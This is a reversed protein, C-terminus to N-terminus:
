RSFYNQSLDKALARIADKMQDRDFNDSIHYEYIFDFKERQEIKKGDRDELFIIKLNEKYSKAVNAVNISSLGDFQDVNEGLILFDYNKIMTDFDIKELIVDMSKSIKTKFFTYLAWAVGGGSGLTPLDLPNIGLTQEIKEKFNKSGKYLFAIDEISAGKRYVRSELFSNEGFLTMDTSTAITIDADFIRHDMNSIDITEVNVMNKAIPNLENGEDDFFRAGLSYLMGMGLDNTATDGIGIYFSKAGANLGDVLMEGFGLSSSNMVDLEEKYLLRLGSSQAMEMVAYNERMVYRATIVDNKPNHVNVYHYDGKLFAQMAEVTGEGGDLFPIIDANSGLEEKFINGIEISNEYNKISDIAVLIKM